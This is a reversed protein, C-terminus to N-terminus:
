GMEFSTAIDTTEGYDYPNQRVFLSREMETIDTGQEEAECLAFYQCFRPCSMHPTKTLYRHARPDEVLALTAQAIDRVEGQIRRLAIAKAKDTMKVAYRLFMRQPQRKSVTGDKNLSKGSADVERLDPFGKRLFNYMIGRFQQGERLIGAKRLAREAMAGYPRAQDDIVLHDTRITAATKHEMLWADGAKDEYVLDPKLLHIAPKPLGIDISFELPVEAALVKVEPDNGYTKQYAGAMAAGLCAIGEAQELLYDPIGLEQAEMLAANARDNFLDVLSPHRAYGTGYWAALADHKWTGLELAGFAKAKPVLGKRWKWFWKKQCRKFEIREHSRVRITRM